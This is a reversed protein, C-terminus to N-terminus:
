KASNSRSKCFEHQIPRLTAFASFAALYFGKETGIRPRLTRLISMGRVEETAKRSQIRDGLWFGGPHERDASL